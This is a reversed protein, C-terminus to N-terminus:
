LIMSAQSSTQYTVSDLALYCGGDEAPIRARIDVFVHPHTRAHCGHPKVRTTVM